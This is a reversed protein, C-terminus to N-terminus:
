PGRPPHNRLRPSQQLPGKEVFDFHTLSIYKQRRVSPISSVTIYQRSWVKYQALKAASADPPLRTVAPNGYHDAVLDIEVSLKLDSFIAPVVTSTDWGFISTILPKEDEDITSTMNWMGYDGHDIVLRYFTAHRTEPPLLFPVLRLLSQKAAAAFPGVVNNDM